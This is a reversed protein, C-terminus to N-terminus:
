RVDPAAASAAAGTGDPAAILAQYAVAHDPEVEAPDSRVALIRPETILSPPDGLDPKCAAAALAALAAVLAGARM